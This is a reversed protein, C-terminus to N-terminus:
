RMAYAIVGIVAIVAIGIVWLLTNSRKQVAKAGYLLMNAGIVRSLDDGPCDPDISCGVAAVAQRLELRKGEPSDVFDTATYWPLEAPLDHPRQILTDDVLLAASSNGQRKGIWYEDGVKLPVYKRGAYVRQVEMGKRYLFVFGENFAHSYLVPYVQGTVGNSEIVLFPTPRQVKSQGRLRM